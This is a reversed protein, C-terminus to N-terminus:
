GQQRETMNDRDKGEPQNPVGKLQLWERVKPMISAFSDEWTLPILGQNVNKMGRYKVSDEKMSSLTAHLARAVGDLTPKAPIILPSINKLYGASKNLYTNTIVPVGCVAAELPMYGTHPSLVLYLVLSAQRIEKAYAAMDLSPLMQAELGSSFVISEHGSGGYCHLEWEDPSLLGADAARSIAELALQYMNRQETSGFRTYVFLVRKGSKKPEPYFLTRDVSPQFVLAKERFGRESFSGTGLNFLMDALSGTNIVPLLNEAYGEMLEAHGPGWALFLPECDQIFYMPYTSGTKKAMKVASSLTWSATACIVDGHCLMIPRTMDSINFRSAVNEAIRLSSILHKRFVEESCAQYQLSICLIDYGMKAIEAAFRFATNPGASFAEPFVGPLILVFRKVDNYESIKINIIDPINGFPEISHIHNWFKIKKMNYNKQCYKHFNIKKFFSGCMKQLYKIKKLSNM